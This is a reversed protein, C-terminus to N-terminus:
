IYRLTLMSGTQHAARFGAAGTPRVESEFAGPFGQNWHSKAEFKRGAAFILLFRWAVAVGAQLGGECPRYETWLNGCGSV